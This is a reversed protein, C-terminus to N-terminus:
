TRRRREQWLLFLPASAGLLSVGVFLLLLMLEPRQERQESLTRFVFGLIVFLLALAALPANVAARIQKGQTFARAASIVEIALVLSGGALWVVAFIPVLKFAVFHAM